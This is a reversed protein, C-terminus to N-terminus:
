QRLLRLLKRVGKREKELNEADAKIAVFTADIRDSQQPYREKLASIIREAKAMQELYVHCKVLHLQANVYYQARVQLRREDASTDGETDDSSEAKEEEEQRDRPDPVAEFYRIAKSPNKLTDLFALGVLLHANMAHQSHPFDRLLQEYAHNVRTMDLTNEYMSIINYEAQAAYVTGPWREVIDDYRRIISDRTNRGTPAMREEILLREWSLRLQDAKNLYLEALGAEDPSLERYEQDAWTAEDDELLAADAVSCVVMGLM